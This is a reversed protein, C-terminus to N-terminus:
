RGYDIPADKKESIVYPRAAGSRQHAVILAYLPAVVVLFGYVEDSSWPTLAAIAAAIPGGQGEAFAHFVTEMITMAAPLWGFWFSRTKWFAIPAPTM